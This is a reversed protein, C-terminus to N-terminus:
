FTDLNHDGVVCVYKNESQVKHLFRELEATSLHIDSNPPRYIALIITNCPTGLRTKDIWIIVYHFSSSFVIDDKMKYSIDNYKFLSVCGGVKSNM